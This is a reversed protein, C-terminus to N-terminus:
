LCPSSLIEPPPQEPLQLDLQALCLQQAKDPKTYRRMRLNRGDTTPVEIDLMQIGSLQSMMSRSSLGSARPKMRMELAVHLCYAMFSIFIHAEIREDEKHYIPRIGLDGKLNRFSEEIRVLRIYHKWLDEGAADLQNTRLLYCGERRLTQRLRDRDLRWSFGCLEVEPDPVEVQVLKYAKGAAKRAAGLKMLLEDRSVTGRAIRADLLRLEIFLKRIKRRRIGGEKHSRARSKALVYSEGEEELLKVNVGDRVSAWDQELFRKEYRSLRGKPTGVLYATDHERMWSLTAETPIGRDMVWVRRLKGHLSDTWEVTAQLTQLDLTNRPWVKYGLPLGDPNVILAIVVQVCDSRKDRSYGFRRKTGPPLGASDSEFYTSTLDYLVVDFQADFLAEWRGRLFGFFAEQHELLRDHCRYLTDKAALAFSEGLLDAMASRDFWERHLRWESGPDLLRYIVLTKLVNLWRTGKRSPRLRPAWFTDFALWNWLQLGLWCGGWQRPRSLQLQSLKIQITPELLGEPVPRDDAFLHGQRSQGDEVMEIAHCWQVRQADSIEGLYLLTKQVVRRSAVRRNEV